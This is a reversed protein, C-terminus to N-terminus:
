APEADWEEFSRNDSLLLSVVFWFFAMVPIFLVGGDSISVVLYVMIAAALSRKYSTGAFPLAGLLHAALPTLMGVMFVALGVFGFTELVSLYVIERIWMFPEAPLVSATELADLQALRGGLNSDFLFAVERGMLGVLAYWVGAVLVSLVALLTLLNRTSIRRVYLRHVVEYVLLGIWVTRSLTLLLSLKVVTVRVASKELWAYLPLLLLISVGFLNGNNYTSILKFIGGRNIYKDELQGVDGINVTLYPIEIFEGTGIKYFFLFIGYVAVAFVGWRILRFLYGLHIRDLHVGLILVFAVPLFFYAVVLSITYGVNLIGNVLLTLWIVVQFPVLAGLMLLRVDRVRGPRGFWLAVPFWLSVLGLAVYGWTLPVAALKIGGKPFVLLFSVLVLIVGRELRSPLPHPPATEPAGFLRLGMLPLTTQPTM